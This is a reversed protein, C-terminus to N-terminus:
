AGGLQGGATGHGPRQAQVLLLIGLVTLVGLLGGLLRLAVDNDQLGVPKLLERWFHLLLYYAPPHKDKVLHFTSEWAYDPNFRKWTMSVAEDFWFSHYDLGWVRPSLPWYSSCNRFALALM